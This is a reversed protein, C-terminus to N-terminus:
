TQLRNREKLIEKLKQRARSRIKRINAENTYLIKAIEKDSLQFYVSYMLVSKQKIPLLSIAMAIERMNEEQILINIPNNDTHLLNFITESNEIYRSEYRIHNLFENKLVKALWYKLSGGPKYSLYAKTFTNQVLNESIDPDGCMSLAYIYLKKHYHAYMKEFNTKDM